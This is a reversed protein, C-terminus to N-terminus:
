WAMGPCLSHCPCVMCVRGESPLSCRARPRLSGGPQRLDLGPVTGGFTVLTHCRCGSMARRNLEVLKSPLESELAPRFRYASQM